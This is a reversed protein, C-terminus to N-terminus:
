RKVFRFSAFNRLVTTAHEATTAAGCGGAQSRPPAPQVCKIIFYKLTYFMSQSQRRGRLLEGRKIQSFWAGGLWGKILSNYNLQFFVM